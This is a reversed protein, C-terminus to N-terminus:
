RSKNIFETLAALIQSPSYVCTVVPCHVVSEIEKLTVDDLLAMHPNFLQKSLIILGPPNAKELAPILDTGTLLCSVDVNGGFFRNVVPLVNLIGQLLSNEVLGELVQAFATGTVITAAPNEGWSDGIGAIAEESGRWEDIFSRMMGIGDHFQPYGAYTKAPPFDYGANLYFEDAIQLSANRQEIGSDEQFERILEIVEAAADPDDSYSHDFCTQYKTYGLPVFAASLVGQHTTIWSLTRTLELGDNIGPVLVGQVHVEIGADLLAELVEMGRDANKGILERRIEPTVAHLSVHLPTLGYEVIREFEADTINTLTVYNGQLFSLRYDDDRLYLTPRMGKPLMHMFCFTCANRCTIVGDFISDNFTIGWDQGLERELLIMKGTDLTLEVDFGDAFWRWEIIDRLAKGAVHTFVMGPKIGCEQAPSGPDVSAVVARCSSPYAIACNLEYPDSIERNRM